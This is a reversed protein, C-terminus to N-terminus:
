ILFIIYGLMQTLVEDGTIVFGYTIICSTRPKAFSNNGSNLSLNQRILFSLEMVPPLQRVSTEPHPYRFYTECPDENPAIPQVNQNRKLVSENPNNDFRCLKVCSFTCRLINEKVPLFNFNKIYLKVYYSTQKHLQTGVIFNFM